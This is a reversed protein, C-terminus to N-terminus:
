DEGVVLDAHEVDFDGRVGVREDVPVVVVVNVDGEAVGRDGVFDDALRWDLYSQVVSLGGERRGSGEGMAGAIEGVLGKAVDGDFEELVVAEASQFRGPVGVAAEVDEVSAGGFDEPDFVGDAGGFELQLGFGNDGAARVRVGHQENGDVIEVEVGRVRAGVARGLGVDWGRAMEFGSVGDPEGQSESLGDDIGAVRRSLKHGQFEWLDHLV